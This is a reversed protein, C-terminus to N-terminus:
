SSCLIEEHFVTDRFPIKFHSHIFVHLVFCLFFGEAPHSLKISFNWHFVNAKGTFTACIRAFEQFLTKM